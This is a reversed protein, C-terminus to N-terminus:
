SEPSMTRAKASDRLGSALKDFPQTNGSLVRVRLTELEKELHGKVDDM